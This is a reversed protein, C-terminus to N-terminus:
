EEVIVDKFQEVVDDWSEYDKWFRITFGFRQKDGMIVDHPIDARVLALNDSNGVCERHIEKLDYEDEPFTWYKVYEDELMDNLVDPMDYWIMESDDEGQVWNLGMFIERDRGGDIHAAGLQVHPNRCFAMATTPTMGLKDHVYQMWEDTFIKEKDLIFKQHHFTKKDVLRRIRNIEIGGLESLAGKFSINTRHMCESMSHVGENKRRVRGM